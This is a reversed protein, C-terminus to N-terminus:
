KLTYTSFTGGGMKGGDQGGVLYMKLVRKLKDKSENTTGPTPQKTEM